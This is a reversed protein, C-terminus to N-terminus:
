RLERHSRPDASAPANQDFLAALRECAIDLTFECRVKEAAARGLDARLEPTELVLQLADALTKSDNPEVLLGTERDAIAEPIGSVSTAVVPLGCAMAELVVNPLGDRDGDATLRCPMAFVTARMMEDHLDSSTAWGAITVADDLQEQGIQRRLRALEPGEGRIRCRFSVGRRKLNACADILTDFGKKEVLRGAALITPIAAPGADRASVAIADIGHHALHIRNPDVDPCITRLHDVGSRTCSVVFAASRIKSDLASPSAYIDRAHATFSFPRDLLRSVAMAVETQALAFHGHVLRCGGRREIERAIWVSRIFLSVARIALLRPSYRLVVLMRFTSLYRGPQRLLREINASLVSPSLTAPVFCVKDYWGRDEPELIDRSRRALAFVVLPVRRRLLGRVERAIFTQSPQPFTGLVYAISADRSM